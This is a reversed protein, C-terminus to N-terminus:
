LLQKRYGYLDRISYERIRWLYGHDRANGDEKLHLTFDLGVQDIDVLRLFNSLSPRRCYIIEEYRFEEREDTGRTSARVFLTSPHKERLRSELTQLPYAVRVRGQNAVGIRDLDPEPELQWGLSNRSRTITCYLALRNERKADIYGFDDLLGKGKNIGMWNPIQSFLTVLKGNGTQAGRRYAKLEVGEFDADQRSNADLGLLTELTFGVGTPGPRMTRVWSGSFGTIKSTLRRVTAEVRGRTELTSPLLGSLADLLHGPKDDILFAVLRANAFAFVLLDGASAYKSLGGVWVRPDGQKTNPRYFSTTCMIPGHAVALPIELVIKGGQGQPIAAFEVLGNRALLARLPATADIISKSLMTATLRVPVPEFEYTELLVALVAQEKQNPTHDLM